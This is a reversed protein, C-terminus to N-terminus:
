EICCSGLNVTKSDRKTGLNIPEYKMSFSNTKTNTIMKFRDKLRFSNELTFFYKLFNTSKINGM